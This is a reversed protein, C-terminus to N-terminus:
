NWHGQNGSKDSVDEIESQDKSEIKQDLNMTTKSVAEEQVSGSNFPINKLLEGEHMMKHQNVITDVFARQQHNSQIRDDNIVTVRRIKGLIKCRVSKLRKHLQGDSKLGGGNIVPPDNTFIM